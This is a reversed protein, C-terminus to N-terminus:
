DKWEELPEDHNKLMAQIEKNPSEEEDSDEEMSFVAEADAADATEATELEIPAATEVVPEEPVEVATKNEEQTEPMSTEAVTESDETQDAAEDSVNNQQEKELMRKQGKKLCVKMLILFVLDAAGNVILLIGSVLIM